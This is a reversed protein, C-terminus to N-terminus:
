MFKTEQNWDIKLGIRSIHKAEKSRDESHVDMDEETRGVEEGQHVMLAKLDNICFSFSYSKHDLPDWKYPRCRFKM